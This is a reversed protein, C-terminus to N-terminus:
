SQLKAKVILSLTKGDAKSGLKEKLTKMLIGMDKPSPNDIERIASDVEAELEAETLLRPLYNNIIAIENQEIEALEPRNGQIYLEIAQKRSKVQGQLVATEEAESLPKKLQIEEYKLATKISRLVKLRAKDKDRQAQILDRDIQKLM